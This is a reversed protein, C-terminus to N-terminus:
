LSQAYQYLAKLVALAQPDNERAQALQELELMFADLNLGRQGDLLVSQRYQQWQRLETDSLTATFYRARYRFLLTQLRQDQFHLQSLQAPDQCQRVRAMTAKDADKIFGDYLAAEADVDSFDGQQAFLTTLKDRLTPTAKITNLNDRCRQRDIGLEDAREASLTKAPALIPCKNIHVLKVPLRSEGPALDATATYLRQRLADGSLEILPTLDGNLDIVIVANKNDPHWAVPVVFTTCGQLAPIKSSTHVLPTLNIVDILAAVAQKRRLNFFYEYLKPQRQRILGALAITAEVDSLADHAQSHALQNAQSLEELRFSPSGDEKQPWTIGEPRLAYTARTVDILDWRSNGHQWEREYPDFFNRYLTFRTVEDDFRLSNYGLTCTEPQSMADNIKAIFQPEAIGRQLALLPTIGTILCAMPHPLYDNTPQSYLVIPSGIPQLQLDTRIAAFQCPRDNKPDAGFTEYDHFLLSATMSHTQQAM